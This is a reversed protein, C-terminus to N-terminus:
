TLQSYHQIVSANSTKPNRFPTMELLLFISKIFSSKVIIKRKFFVELSAYGAINPVLNLHCVQFFM